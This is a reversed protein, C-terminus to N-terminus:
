RTTWPQNRPVLPNRPLHPIQTSQLQPIPAVDQAWPPGSKSSSCRTKPSEVSMDPAAARCPSQKAAAPEGNKQYSPTPPMPIEEQFTPLYVKQQRLRALDCESYLLSDGYCGKFIPDAAKFDGVEEMPCPEEMIPDILPGRHNWPELISPYLCDNYQAGHPMILHSGIYKSHQKPDDNSFQLTTRCVCCHLRMGTPSNHTNFHDPTIGKIYSTPYMLCYPPDMPISMVGRLNDVFLYYACRKSPNHSAKLTNCVTWLDGEIDQIFDTIQSPSYLHSDVRCVVLGVYINIIREHESDAQFVLLIATTGSLEPPTNSQLPTFAGESLLTCLGDLSICQMHLTPLMPCFCIDGLNIRDQSRLTDRPITGGDKLMM